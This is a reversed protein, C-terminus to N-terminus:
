PWAEKPNVPDIAVAITTAITIIVIIVTTIITIIITIIIAVTTFITINVALLLVLSFTADALSISERPISDPIELLRHVIVMALDEEIHM